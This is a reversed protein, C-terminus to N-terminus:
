LCLVVCCWCLSPRMFKDHDEAAICVRFACVHDKDSSRLWSKATFCSIVNINQSTLFDNMASDTCEQHVNDVHYVSKRILTVGSKVPMAKSAVMEGFMHKKVAPVRTSVVPRSSNINVSQRDVVDQVDPRNKKRFQIVRWNTNVVSASNM